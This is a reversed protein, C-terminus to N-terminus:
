GALPKENSSAKPPSKSGVYTRTDRTQSMSQILLGAACVWCACCWYAGGTPGGGVEPWASLGVRGSRLGLAAPVPGWGSSRSSTFLTLRNDQDTQFPLYCPQSDAISSPNGVLILPQLAPISHRHNGFPRSHRARWSPEKCLYQCTRFLLISIQYYLSSMQIYRKIQYGERGDEENLDGKGRGCARTVESWRKQFQGRHNKSPQRPQAQISGQNPQRSHRDECYAQYTTVQGLNSVQASIEEFPLQKYAM